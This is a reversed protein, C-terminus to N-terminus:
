FSPNSNIQSFYTAPRLVSVHEITKGFLPGFHRVDGTLLVTAKAAIAAQLIPRDKEPLNVTEPLPIKPLSEHIEVQTMLTKLQKQQGETKLNSFAEQLAYNSTVLQINTLNWLQLLGSIPRYAASFLVNADLFVRDM